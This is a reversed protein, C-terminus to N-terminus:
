FPLYERLRGIFSGPSSERREEFVPHLLDLLETENEFRDRSLQGLAESLALTNGSSDYPIEQADVQRLIEESTAPFQVEAEDLRANLAAIGFAVTDPESSEDQPPRVAMPSRVNEPGLFTSWARGGEDPAPPSIRVRRRVGYTVSYVVTEIGFSNASRTSSVISPVLKELM